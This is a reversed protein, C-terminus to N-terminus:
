SKPSKLRPLETQPSHLEYLDGTADLGYKAVADTVENGYLDVAGQADGPRVVSGNEDDTTLQAVAATVTARAPLPERSSRIQPRALLCVSFFLITILL